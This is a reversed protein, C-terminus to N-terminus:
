FCRNCFTRGAFVNNVAVPGDPDADELGRNLEEIALKWFSSAGEFDGAEERKVARFGHLLAGQTGELFILGDMPVAVPLFKLKVLAIISERCACGPRGGDLQYRLYSPNTESPEYVALDYLVDQTADYAYLRATSQTISKVVRDIRSVFTSSSGFPMQAAITVGETWTGDGNNTRLPQNNNDAGFLQVTAGVDEQADVYLRVTCNPGYIDNYTPAHYQMTMTRERGCLGEWGRRNGHGELFEYWVPKVPINGRCTHMSRVQGVYRWWTVQGDRVTVRVPMLTGPWDGRQLLRPIVQNAMELFDNSTTCFGSATQFANTQIDALTLM